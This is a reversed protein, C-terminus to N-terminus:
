PSPSQELIYGIGRVTRINVDSGLRNLKQRLYHVCIDINNEEIFSSTGWVAELISKRSMVKEPYRFFLLLLQCEKPSLTEIQNAMSLHNDENENVKTLRNDESVIRLDGYSFVTTENSEDSRRLLVRLRALLEESSFPKSIYDEAGADLGEVRDNITDKATLFLLKTKRGYKRLERLIDLGNKGPLMRDCIIIDYENKLALDLGNVGDHSLDLEFGEDKLLYSLGAALTFDDEILLLKASM